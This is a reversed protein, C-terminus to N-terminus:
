LLEKTRKVEVKYEGDNNWDEIVKDVPYVKGYNGDQSITISESFWVGKSFMITQYETHIILAEDFTIEYEGDNVNIEDTIIEVAKINEEIPVVKTEAIVYPVYPTKSNVKKCSFIAIDEITDFFPRSEVENFVDISYDDLNIRFNGYTTPLGYGKECEYSVFTKGKMNSLVTIMDKSFRADIM